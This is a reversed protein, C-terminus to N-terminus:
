AGKLKTLDRPGADSLLIHTEFAVIRDLRSREPTLAKLALRAATEGIQRRPSQSTAIRVPLSQAIELGNFGAILIKEPVAMGLEMCAFAGGAAMDDNSYYLCDLDKQRELLRRTLTKGLSISSLDPDTEEALWHLGAAALSEEFGQRRKGARLDRGTGCGIYGFRRRGAALLAQAIDRGAATHSLGVGFEIPEGDLDMIQVIPTEAQRLLRTTREPQDLGTVIMAAPRWSLMARIVDHEKEVDYESLGFVAQMGSGELATSIGALVEPFVVNAMTPVVVGILNTRRSSLSLALQNGVYGIREAAERVKRLSEPSVDPAGRLARSATMKSVGAAAAVQELTPKHM